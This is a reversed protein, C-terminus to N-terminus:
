RIMGRRQSPKPALNPTSEWLKGADQSRLVLLSQEEPVQEERCRWAITPWCLHELTMMLTKFRDRHRLHCFLTWRKEAPGKYEVAYVTVLKGV